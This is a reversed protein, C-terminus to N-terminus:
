SCRGERLESTRAGSAWIGRLLAALVALSLGVLWAPAPKDDRVWDPLMRVRGTGALYPVVIATCNITFHAVVPVLLSATRWYLIGLFVGLAFAAPFRWADHLLGFVVSAVLVAPWGAGRRGFWSALSTQLIGRFVLEEGAAAGAAAVALVYALELPSDARIMDSFEELLEKPVGFGSLFASELSLVPVIAALSAIVACVLVKPKAPVLGV